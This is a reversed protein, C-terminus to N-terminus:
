ERKELAIWKAEQACAEEQREFWEWAEELSEDEAQQNERQEEQSLMAVMNRRLRAMLTAAEKRAREVNEAERLWFEELEDNRRRENAAARAFWEPLEIKEFQVWAGPVEGPEFTEDDEWSYLLGDRLEIHALDAQPLLGHVVLYDGPETPGLQGEKEENELM